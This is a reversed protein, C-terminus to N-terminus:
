PKGAKRAALARLLRGAHASARRRDRTNEHAWWGELSDLEPESDSWLILLALVRRLRLVETAHKHRLLDAAFTGTAPRKM